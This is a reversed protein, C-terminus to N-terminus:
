AYCSETAEKLLHYNHEDVNTVSQFFYIFFIAVLGLGVVMAGWFSEKM